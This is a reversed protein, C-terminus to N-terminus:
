VRLSIDFTDPRDVIKALENLFERVSDIDIEIEYKHIQGNDEVTILFKDKVENVTINEEDCYYYELIEEIIQRLSTAKNIYNGDGDSWAWIYTTPIQEITKDSEYSM